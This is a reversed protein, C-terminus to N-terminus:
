AADICPCIHKAKLELSRNTTFKAQLTWGIVQFPESGQTRTSPLNGPPPSQCAQARFRKCGWCASRVKKVLRRLRHIWYVDRVKAMTLSVGGHLTSLHAQRVIGHTFPHSEPLHIPFEGEIRGRCELIDESNLQLNLQLQDQKFCLREQCELQARKTWWLRQQEIEIANLPGDQRDGVRTRCNSIFRQIWACIRLVKYVEHADLLQDFDDHVQATAAFVSRTVKLEANSDANPELIMDSPWETEESLWSPGQNWLQHHDVSGGRSGLDAPNETTPM